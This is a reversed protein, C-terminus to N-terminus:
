AHGSSLQRCSPCLNAPGVSATSGLCLRRFRAVQGSGYAHGGQWLSSRCASRAIAQGVLCLPTSSSPHM